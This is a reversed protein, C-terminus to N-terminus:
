TTPRIRMSPRVEPLQPGASAPDVLSINMPAVGVQGDQELAQLYELVARTDLHPTHWDISM